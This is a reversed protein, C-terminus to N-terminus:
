YSILLTHVYSIIPHTLLLIHQTNIPPPNHLPPVALTCTRQTHQGPGNMRPMNSDILVADIAYLLQKQEYEDGRSGLRIVSSRPLANKTSGMAPSGARSGLPDAGDNSSSINIDGHHQQAHRSKRVFMQSMESLGEVGDEAERCAFGKSTLMRVLM